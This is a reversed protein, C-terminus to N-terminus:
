EADAQMGGASIAAAFARRHEGVDHVRFLRIGKNLHTLSVALTAPLRLEPQAAPHDRDAAGLFSKRSVASLVPFGEAQFVHLHRVLMWNQEATKGFGIGPDLVIHGKGVGAEVVAEVRAKLFEAVDRLLDAYHPTNEARYETSYQDRAPQRLRHMLIVGAKGRAMVGVMEPDDRGASTDNIICAGANLAAQAVAAKTTDISMIADPRERAIAEIVPVTRRIQEEAGVGQAGPRTSEGGIDLIDAGEGLMTLARRLAADADAFRGGDYFSDPTVNLIAMLRPRDLSLARGSALQWPEMAM